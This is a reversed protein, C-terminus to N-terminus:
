TSPTPAAGAHAKRQILPLDPTLAFFEGEGKQTEGEREGM